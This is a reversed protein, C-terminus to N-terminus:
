RMAIVPSTQLLHLLVAVSIWGWGGARLSAEDGSVRGRGPVSGACLRSILTCNQGAAARWGGWEASVSTARGAAACEGECRGPSRPAARPPPQLTHATHLTCRAASLRTSHQLAPALTSCPRSVASWTCRVQVAASCGGHCQLQTVDSQLWLDCEATPDM